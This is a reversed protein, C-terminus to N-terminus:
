LQSYLNAARDIRRFIFKSVDHAWDTARQRGSRCDVRCIGKRMLQDRRIQDIHRGDGTGRPYSTVRRSDFIEGVPGALERIDEYVERHRRQDRAWGTPAGIWFCSKGSRRITDVMHSIQRRGERRTINEINGGLQVIIVTPNLEEILSILDPQGNPGHSRGHEREGRYNIDQHGCTYRDGEVFTAPTSGCRAVTTAVANRQGSLFENLKRGFTGYSQSDGLHLFRIYGRQFFPESRRVMYFRSQAQVISIAFLNGLIILKLCNKIIVM